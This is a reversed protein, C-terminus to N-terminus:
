PADGCEEPCELAPNYPTFMGSPNDAYLWVHLDYHWPMGEEHGAMPGQFPINDYLEPSPPPNAPPCSNNKVGCGMYPRGDIVIPQLSEIAVLRWRGDENLYLLVEPEEISLPDTLREPNVFHHGMTGLDPDSFCVDTPIFGEAIAVNVDKYKETAARARALQDELTGCQNGHDTDAGTPAANTTKAQDLGHSEQACAPALGVVVTLIAVRLAELHKM